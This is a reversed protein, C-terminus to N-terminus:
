GAARGNAVATRNSEEANSSAQVASNKKGWRRENFARVGQKQLESPPEWRSCQHKAILDALVDAVSMKGKKVAAYYEEVLERERDDLPAAWLKNTM